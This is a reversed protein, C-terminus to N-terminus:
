LKGVSNCCHCKFGGCGNKIFQGNCEKKSSVCQGQCGNQECKPACCSCKKKKKCGGKITRETGDCSKKCVGDYRSCKSKAECVGCCTCDGSCLSSDGNKKCKAKCKGGKMDCDDTTACGGQKVKRPRFNQNQPGRRPGRTGKGESVNGTKLGTTKSPKVKTCCVCRKGCRPGRGEEACQRRPTCTGVDCPATCKFAKRIMGPPHDTTVLCCKRSGGCDNADDDYKECIRNAKGNRYCEGGAKRCTMGKALRASDVSSIVMIFVALNMLLSIMKRM